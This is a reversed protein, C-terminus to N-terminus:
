TNKTAVSDEVIRPTLLLMLRSHEHHKTTRTFLSGIVPLYGLVPLRRREVHTQLEDLGGVILSEGPMAEFTGTAKRTDVVPLKTLPDVAKIDSMEVALEVQIRDGKTIPSVTLSLGAKVPIASDRDYYMQRVQIYKDIGAFLTGKEGSVVSLKASSVDQAKASETLATLRAALDAPSVESKSIGFQVSPLDLSVSLDNNGYDLALAANVDVAPSLEILRAEVEVTKAPRDVLALDARLRDAFAASGCFVLQNSSNDVRVCGTLFNPLLDLAEEARIWRLRVAQTEGQGYAGDSKVVTERIVLKGQPSGETTLGYCRCLSQVLDEFSVNPLEATVLREASPDLEIQRGSVSKLRRVLESLLSNRSHLTVSGGNLSVGLENDRDKLGENTRHEPADPARDSVATIVISREDEGAAIDIHVRDSWDVGEMSRDDWDRCKVHCLWATTYFCVRMDVEYFNGRGPAPSFEIHSIPYKGVPVISNVQLRAKDFRVILSRIPKSSEFDYRWGKNSLVSYNANDSEIRNFDPDIAGDAQVVIQVANSAQQVEVATVSYTADGVQASAIGTTCVAIVLASFVALLARM